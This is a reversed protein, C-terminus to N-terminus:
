RQEEGNKVAEWITSQTAPMDLHEVGYEALAHVIANITVALSPTIGSEGGGKVRLPNGSTPDEVLEVDFSPYQDSHPMGYDLFSASLLQGTDGDYVVTESLAQGTGQVIGGHVQGDLILPNIPQGADDISTYRVIRPVWTQRDVEVECIACGTPYAPMRGTFSASSSLEGGQAEIISAAQFIDFSTNTAAVRLLGDSMAVDDPLIGCHRAIVEKTSEVLKGANEVLLTGGLRMSRDSHSGGGSRVRTTDGSILRVDTPHVSLLDAVVQAFSTEHGQGTSQTGTVVDIRRDNGRIIMDIREHPIGVPSEVYNAIGIGRLKGCKAAAERRIDFSNWDARELALAMNAAFDGSDYSLGMPSTYPLRERGVLNRRRIEIRDMGLRHAAIDILREIAHHAEPRGAGRYPGTPVTNTLAGRIAVHATPVDYVGTMVRYSNSMPVFSVTYAGVNGTMEVSYATIRGASDFGMRAAHVIDRGQYDSMFAETRSSTWRVPRGLRKAAIALVPQEPSLNTRPGFGGGVDPCIVEIQKRDIGLAQAMTDRQRVAGQSGAIMRYGSAADFSVIASRPEMQANAIRQNIFTKEIVLHSAALAVETREREGFSASVVLNGAIDPDVLPADEDLAQRADVVFPLEEYDVFVDELADQAQLATDAVVMAVPEGVYRVRELPMPLHPIDISVHGDPGRFARKTHDRADAPDAFHDIPGAGADIYDQGTLVALVGPRSLAQSVDIAAIRASAHPSRVFAAHCENDLRFDDTYRGNGTILREDEFRPMSRGIFPGDQMDAPVRNGQM